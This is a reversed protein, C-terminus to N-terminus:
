RAAIWAGVSVAARATAAAVTRSTGLAELEAACKREQRWRGRADRARACDRLCRAIIQEPKVEDM